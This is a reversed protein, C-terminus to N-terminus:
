ESDKTFKPFVNMACQKMEKRYQVNKGAVCKDLLAYFEASHNMHITHCLEHLIVYDILHFPLTMLYLSFVIRKRSNCSGWRTKASSIKLGSYTFGYKKALFEIRKSLFEQAEKRLAKQIAENIYDQVQENELSVLAPIWLKITDSTITGRLKADESRAIELNHFHTFKTQSEVIKRVSAIRSQQKKQAALIENKKQLVFAEALALPTLYPVIVHVEGDKIRISVRRSGKRKQFHVLGIESFLKDKTM